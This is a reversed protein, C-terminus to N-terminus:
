YGYRVKLLVCQIFIRLHRKIKYSTMLVFFRRASIRKNCMYTIMLLQYKRQELSMKSKNKLYFRMYGFFRKKSNSIRDVGGVSIYQDVFNTNVANGYKEILRFWLDYDQAATLNVDFGGVSLIRDRKVFIQNGVHNEYLMDHLTIIAKKNTYKSKGDNWLFKDNSFLFSAERGVISGFFNEVRNPHWVDDDDLGTVYDTCLVSIAINRSYCAGMTKENRILVVDDFQFKDLIHEVSEDSCDDVIVLKDIKRIQQFVSEIARELQIPRNKTIIYAGVTENM